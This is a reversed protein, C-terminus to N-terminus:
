TYSFCINVVAHTPGQEKSGQMLRAAAAQIYPPARSLDGIVRLEAQWRKADEDQLCCCCCCLGTVAQLQVYL